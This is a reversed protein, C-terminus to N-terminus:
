FSRKLGLEYLQFSRSERDSDLNSNRARMYLEFQRHYWRMEVSQQFGTTLGAESDDINVYGATASVLLSRTLYHTVTGTVTLTNNQQDRDTYDLMVYTANASFLTQSSYRHDVRAGLRLADFPVLLSDYIEYEAMLTADWFRYETGIIYDRVSDPKIVDEGGSANQELMSYRVYPSLGKLPGRQIDYRFGLSFLFSTLENDPLPGITYDLLQPSNEPIAGGIVRNIEIGDPRTEVTYDIGPIYFRGQPDSIVVSEPIITQGRVIVPQQNSFTIPRDIVPVAESGSETVRYDYGANMTGLLLGYPVKKNYNWDLNVFWDETSGGDSLDISQYGAEGHTVLSDYLWHRFEATARQLTQDFDGTDQRDLIYEYETEFTNSHHLRLDEDWRIRETGFPGTTDSYTITSSLTHRYFPGFSWTHGLSASQGTTDVTDSGTTTQESQNIRYDWTLFQHPTPNAESHWEFVNDNLEFDIGDDGLDQQEQETRYLRFTSPVSKNRSQLFAGYTTYTDRLSSGFARDVLNETRSTYLQLSNTQERLFNAQVDWLFFTSNIQQDEENSDFDEQTLGFQGRLLLDLFNPHVVYGTTELTISEQFILDTSKTEGGGTESDNRDRAYQAIFDLSGTPIALGYPAVKRQAGVVVPGGEQAASFASIALVPALAATATALQRLLRGRGRAMM